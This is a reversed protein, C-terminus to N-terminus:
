RMRVRYLKDDTDDPTGRGDTNNSVFYLYDGDILVDRIRGLGNVFERTKKGALDIERVANGRLTAVYLKDGRAAMGSPAWTEEGSQFLPTEMGQKKETGMIAPWGYNKGPKIENIEDHASQGHESAYMTGDATWAIGQPNRHGYSYIYSGPIPNDSPVSGDLNMRLIKGGLTELSQALDPNAADGATTYLKGDPGIELRGGHHVAGSPLNDILTREESWAGNRHSLAVVRNKQGSSDNYTYYAYATQSSLFDPPLVFGLLGAESADSLKEKLMVRQRESKGNEIKVISGLRESIYFTEGSKEISWPIQLNEDIIEAKGQLVAPTDEPAKKGPEAKREPFCGGLIFTALVVLLPISKKM